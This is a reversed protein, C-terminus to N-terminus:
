VEWYTTTAKSGTFIVLFCFEYVLMIMDNKSTQIFYLFPCVNLFSKFYERDFSSKKDKNPRAKTAVLVKVSDQGNV